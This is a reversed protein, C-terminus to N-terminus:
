QERAPLQSNRYIRESRNAWFKWFLLGMEYEVQWGTASDSELYWRYAGGGACLERLRMAPSLLDRILGLADRVATAPDPGHNLPTHMDGCRLELGDSNAELEVDFGESATAPFSLVLRDDAATWEHKLASTDRLAAEGQERLSEIIDGARVTEM